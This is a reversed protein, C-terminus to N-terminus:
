VAYKRRSYVIKGGVITMEVKTTRIREAPIDLINDSLVTLDALKGTEITGRRREDFSAYAANITYTELAEKVTLNEQKFSKRTTAAWIGLLPSINEVPCDSSSALTIKQKMLTKFPYTWRM